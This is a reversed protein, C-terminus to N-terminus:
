PFFAIVNEAVRQATEDAPMGAFNTEIVRHSYPYESEQHPFDTNYAHKYAKYAEDDRINRRFYLGSTPEPFLVEADIGDIDQEKLRQEAPGTGPLPILL